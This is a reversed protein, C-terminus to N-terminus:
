MKARRGGVDDNNMLSQGILVEVAAKLCFGINVATSPKRYENKGPSAETINKAGTIVFQFKSPVCLDELGKVTKDIDKAVENKTIYIPTKVECPWTQCILRCIQM